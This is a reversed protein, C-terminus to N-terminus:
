REERLVHLTEQRFKHLKRCAMDIENQWAENDMCILPGEYPTVYEDLLEDTSKKMDGDDLVATEVLYGGLSHLASSYRRRTKKAKGDLEEGEWFKVFLVLLEHAIADERAPNEGLLWDEIWGQEPKM